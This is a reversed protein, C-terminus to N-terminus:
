ESVTRWALYSHPADRPKTPPIHWYPGFQERLLDDYCLSRNLYLGEFEVSETREFQNKEVVMDASHAGNVYCCVLSSGGYNLGSFEKNLRKKLRCIKARSRFLNHYFRKLIAKPTNDSSAPLYTRRSIARITRQIRNITRARVRSDNSAGDFPFVDIWLYEEIVGQLTPEQARVEMFQLKAFGQSWVSNEFTLLQYNDPLDDSLSVFLDYDPRPMAVDVDDDWPIFGGERCAGLLTGGILSYRLRNESCFEHFVRLMKLQEEHIEDRSLYQM